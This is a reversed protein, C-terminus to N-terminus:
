YLHFEVEVALEADVPEGDKKAPTFRWGAVAEVAKEDLGFGLPNAIRINRVKGQRDVVILLVVVGQYKASRALESFEPDPSFVVKPPTVGKGMRAIPRESAQTESTSEEAASSRIGPIAAFEPPFRCADYPKEGIGSSAARVCPKWYDPVLAPLRDRATLFIKSLAAEAQAATIGDANLDVEISLKHGKEPKRKNKDFYQQFHFTQGTNGVSVREARMTLRQGDVDLSTVRVFGDVTWGGPHASGTPMGDLDYHLHEGHLFGRLVVTKGKYQDRLHQEVDSGARLQLPAISIALGM